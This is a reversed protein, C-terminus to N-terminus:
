RGGGALRVIEREIEALDFPKPLYSDAGLSLANERIQESDFGTVFAIRAKSLAKIHQIATLGMMGPLGDDLVIADFDKEKLVDLAIEASGATDVAMGRRGLHRRLIRVLAPDDDVILIRLPHCTEDTSESTM